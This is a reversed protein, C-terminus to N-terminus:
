SEILSIQNLFASITEFTAAESEFARLTVLDDYKRKHDDTKSQDSERDFLEHYLEETRDLVVM